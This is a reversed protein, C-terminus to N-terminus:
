LQNNRTTNISIFGISNKGVREKIQKKAQYIHKVTPRPAENHLTNEKIRVYSFLLRPNSVTALIWFFWVTIFWFYSYFLFSGCKLSKHELCFCM